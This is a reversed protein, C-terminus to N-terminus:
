DRMFKQKEIEFIESKKRMKKNLEKKRDL